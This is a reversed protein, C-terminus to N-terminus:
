ENNTDESLKAEGPEEIYEGTLRYYLEELSSQAALGHKLEWGSNYMAHVEKLEELLKKRETALLEVHVDWKIYRVKRTRLGVDWHRRCFNPKLRQCLKCKLRREDRVKLKKEWEAEKNTLKM